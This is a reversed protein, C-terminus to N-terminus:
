DLCHNSQGTMGTIAEPEHTEYQEEHDYHAFDDHHGRDMSQRNTNCGGM